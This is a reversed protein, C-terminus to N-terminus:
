DHTKKMGKLENVLNIDQIAGSSSSKENTSAIQLGKKFGTGPARRKKEREV